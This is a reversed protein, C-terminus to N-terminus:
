DAIARWADIAQDHFRNGDEFCWRWGKRFAKKAAKKGTGAPPKVYDKRMAFGYWAGMFDDGRVEVMVQNPPPNLEPNIHWMHEDNNRNLSKGAGTNPSNM